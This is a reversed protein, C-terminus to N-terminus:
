WSMRPDLLALMDLDTTGEPMDFEIVSGSSDAMHLCVRPTRICAEPMIILSEEKKKGKGKVPKTRDYNKFEVGQVKTADVWIDPTFQVFKM